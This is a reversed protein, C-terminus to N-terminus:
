HGRMPYISKEDTGGLFERTEIESGQLAKQASRVSVRLMSSPIVETKCLHLCSLTHRMLCSPGLVGDFVVFAFSLQTNTLFVM